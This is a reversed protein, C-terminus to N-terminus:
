MFVSLSIELSIKTSFIIVKYDANVNSIRWECNEKDPFYKNFDDEVSYLNWDNQNIKITYQSFFPFKM